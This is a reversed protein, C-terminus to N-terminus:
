QEPTAFPGKVDCKLSALIAQRELTLSERRNGSNLEPLEAHAPDHGAPTDPRPEVAIGARRLDGAILVAVYYSKGPQGKAAQEISKHKARSLSLGTTDNKKHPEFANSMLIGTAEDYWGTSVPVRRYLEEDDAFPEKGNEM